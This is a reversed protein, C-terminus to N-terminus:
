EIYRVYVSFVAYRDSYIASRTDLLDLTAKLTNVVILNFGM